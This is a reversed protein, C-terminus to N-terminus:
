PGKEPVVGTLRHWFLVELFHHLPPHVSASVGVMRSPAVEDPSLLAWRQIQILLYCRGEFSLVSFTDVIWWWWGGMKKCAPHGEQRGVLLTLAASSLL